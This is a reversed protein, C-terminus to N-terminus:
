FNSIPLFGKEKFISDAEALIADAKEPMVSYLLDRLRRVADRLLDVEQPSYNYGPALIEQQALDRIGQILDTFDDSRVLKGIADFQIKWTKKRNRLSAGRLILLIKALAKEPAFEEPKLLKHKHKDGLTITVRTIKFFVRIVSVTEGLISEKKIESVTGVGHPPYYVLDGVSFQREQVMAGEM